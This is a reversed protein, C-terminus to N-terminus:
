PAVEILFHAPLGKLEARPSLGAREAAALVAARHVRRNSLAIRGVGPKLAPLLRRLYAERDALLHDVESLLILDYRGPELGPDDPSVTRTIIPAEGPGAAGIRQLSSGDIDTALVRGSPGAAAALRHTLYGAGAGVDAVVAGPAIHLAAVVLEPRRYKDQLHTPDNGGQSGQARAPSSRCAATFGIALLFVACAL